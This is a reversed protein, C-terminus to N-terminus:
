SRKERERRERRAYDQSTKTLGPIEDAWLVHKETRMFSNRKNKSHNATSQMGGMQGLYVITYVQIGTHTQFWCVKFNRDQKMMLLVAIFSAKLRDKECNSSEAQVLAFESLFWVAEMNAKASKGKKAAHSGEWTHWWASRVLRVAMNLGYCLM